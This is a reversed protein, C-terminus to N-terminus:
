HVTFPFPDTSKVSEGSILFSTPKVSYEEFQSLYLFASSLKLQLKCKPRIMSIVSIIRRHVKAKNQPALITWRYLAPSRAAQDLTKSDRRPSPIKKEGDSHGSRSQPVGLRDLPYWPSKGQSHLPRLTFSVVWRWTTDHNLIPPATGGSGM